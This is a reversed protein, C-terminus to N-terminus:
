TKNNGMRSENLKVETIFICFYRIFCVLTLIWLTKRTLSQDGLNKDFTRKVLSRKIYSLNFTETFMVCARTKNSYRYSILPVEIAEHGEIVMM